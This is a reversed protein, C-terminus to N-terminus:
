FLVFCLVVVVVVLLVRWFLVWVRAPKKEGQNRGKSTAMNFTLAAFQFRLGSRGSKLCTQIATTNLCRKPTITPACCGKQRTPKQMNPGKKKTVTGQPAETTGWAPSHSSPLCRVSHWQSVCFEAPSHEGPYKQTLCPNTVGYKRLKVVAQCM